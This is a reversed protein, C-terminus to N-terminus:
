NCGALIGTLAHQQIFGTQTEELQFLKYKVGKIRNPMTRLLELNEEVSQGKDRDEVGKFNHRRIANPAYINRVAEINNEEIARFFRKAIELVESM